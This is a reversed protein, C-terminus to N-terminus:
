TTPWAETKDVHFKTGDPPGTLLSDLADMVAHLEPLDGQRDLADQEHYVEISVFRGPQDLDELIDFSIVGPVTRSARTLARFMARAQDIKAGHVQADVRFVIM